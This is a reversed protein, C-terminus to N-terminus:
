TEARGYRGHLCLITPGETKTDFYFLGISKLKAVNRYIKIKKM